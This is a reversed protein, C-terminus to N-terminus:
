ELVILDNKYIVQKLTHIFHNKIFLVHISKQWYKSFFYYNNTNLSFYYLKKYFSIKNFYLLSKKKKAIPGRSMSRFTNNKKINIYIYKKIKNNFINSNLMLKSLGFNNLKICYFFCNLLLFKTNKKPFNSKNTSKCMLFCNFPKQTLEGCSM